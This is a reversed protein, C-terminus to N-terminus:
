GATPTCRRGWRPRGSRRRRRGRAAARERPGPWRRPPPSLRPSWDLRLLAECWLALPGQLGDRGVGWPPMGIVVWGLVVVVSEQFFFFAIVLSGKVSEFVILTVFGIPCLEVIFSFLSSVAKVSVKLSIQSFAIFM